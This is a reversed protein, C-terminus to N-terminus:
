DLHTNLDSYGLGGEEFVGEGSLVCVVGERESFFFFIIHHCM